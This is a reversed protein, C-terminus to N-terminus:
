LQSIKMVGKTRGSGPCGGLFKSSARCIRIFCSATLVSRGQLTPHTPNSRFHLIMTIKKIEKRGMKVHYSIDLCIAFSLYALFIPIHNFFIYCSLTIYNSLLFVSLLRMQFPLNLAYFFTFKTKIWISKDTNWKLRQLKFTGLTVRRSRM